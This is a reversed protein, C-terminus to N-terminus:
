AHVDHRAHHACGTAIFEIGADAIRLAISVMRSSHSLFGMGALTSTGSPPNGTKLLDGLGDHEEGAVIGGVHGACHQRDIAALAATDNPANESCWTPSSRSTIQDSM